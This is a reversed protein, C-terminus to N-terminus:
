LYVESIVEGAFVLRLTHCDKYLSDGGALDGVYESTTRVDLYLHKKLLALVAKESMPIIEETNM